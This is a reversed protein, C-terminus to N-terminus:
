CLQVTNTRKIKSCRDFLGFCSVYVSPVPSNAIRGPGDSIHPSLLIAETGTAVTDEVSPNLINNDSESSKSPSTNDLPAMKPTTHNYVQVAASSVKKSHQNTGARVFILPATVVCSRSQSIRSWLHEHFSWGLLFGTDPLSTREWGPSM